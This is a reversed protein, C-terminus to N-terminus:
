DPPVPMRMTMPDLCGGAGDINREKIVYNQSAGFTIRGVDTVIAEAGGSQQLALPSRGKKKPPVFSAVRHHAV